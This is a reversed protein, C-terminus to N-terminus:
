RGWAGVLLAALSVVASLVAAYATILAAFEGVSLSRRSRPYLRM